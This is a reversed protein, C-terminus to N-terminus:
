GSAAAQTAWKMSEIYASALKEEGIGLTQAATMCNEWDATEIKQVVGLLAGVPNAEGLLAAKAEPRMPLTKLLPEIPTELMADLLSLLGLMFQETPNEGALPALLECFHARKLSLVVLPSPQSQGLVCSTAVSV